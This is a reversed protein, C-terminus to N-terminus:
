ELIATSYYPVVIYQGEHIENPSIHNIACVEEIYAHTDKYENSIYVKAIDWLTDGQELQISTYYKYTTEAPAAQTLSSGFVISCIIFVAVISCFLFTTYKQTFEQQKSGNSLPAKRHNTKNVKKITRNATTYNYIRTNM